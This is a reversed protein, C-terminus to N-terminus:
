TLLITEKSRENSVKKFYDLYLNGIKESSFCKEVIERANRGMSLRTETDTILMGVGRALEEINFREALIGNKNHDILDPIGGTRFAAVPVGCAMAELIVNPLNDARSPLILLDAASYLAALSIDDELRGMYHTKFGAVNVVAGSANGFVVLETKEPNQLILARLTKELLDFGKRPDSLANVSGFLLLTRDVPLNFLGRAFNRNYPRYITTDIANGIVSVPFNRTLPADQLSKALWNSPSIFHFNIGNWSKKKSNWIKRSLDWRHNSDLVPCTGCGTKFALCDGPYHCGGTFAWADHVTWVIPPFGPGTLKRLHDISFFGNTAWHLNIIDPSFSRIRHVFDAGWFSASFSENNKKPYIRVPIENLWSRLKGAYLEARNSPGVITADDGRKEQVVM